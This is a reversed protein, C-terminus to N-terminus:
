EAAELQEDFARSNAGSRRFGAQKGFLGELANVQAEPLSQASSAAPLLFSGLAASAAVALLLPKM